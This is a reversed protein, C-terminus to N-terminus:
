KNFRFPGAPVGGSPVARLICSIRSSCLCESYEMEVTTQLATLTVPTRRWYSTRVHKPLTGTRSLTDTFCGATGFNDLNRGRESLVPTCAELNNADLLQM